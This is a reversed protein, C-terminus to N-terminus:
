KGGNAGTDTQTGEVASAESATANEANLTTSAAEDTAEGTAGGEADAEDDTADSASEADTEDEASEVSGGASVYHATEVQYLEEDEYLVTIVATFLTGRATETASITSTTTYNDAKETVTGAVLTNAAAFSEAKSTALTIARARHQDHANSSYAYSFLRAFIGLCAIVVVLIILVEVILATGHWSGRQNQRTSLLAMNDVSFRANNQSENLYEFSDPSSM